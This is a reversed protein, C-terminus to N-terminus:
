LAIKDASYMAICVRIAAHCQADTQLGLGAIQIATAFLFASCIFGQAFVLVDSVRTKSKQGAM